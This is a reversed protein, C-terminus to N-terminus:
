EQFILVLLATCATVSRVLSTVTGRLAVGGAVVTALLAVQAALARLGLGLLGAVAASLSTVDRAVAWRLSSGAAETTSSATGALLAVLAAFDTVDSALAGLVTTASVAAGLTSVASTSIATSGTSVAASLALGGAVGTAPIAVHRTVAGLALFAVVTLRRGRNKLVYSVLVCTALNSMQASVARRLRRVLADAVLALLGAM